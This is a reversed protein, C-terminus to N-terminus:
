LSSISTSDSFQSNVNLNSNVRLKLKNISTKFNQMLIIGRFLQIWWHSSYFRLARVNIAKWFANCEAKGVASFGLLGSVIFWQRCFGKGIFIVGRAFGFINDHVSIVVNSKCFAIFFTWLTMHRQFVFSDWGLHHLCSLLWGSYKCLISRSVERTPSPM